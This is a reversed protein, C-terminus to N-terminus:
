VREGIEIDLRGGQFSLIKMAIKSLLPVKKRNPFAIVLRLSLKHKKLLENHAFSYTKIKQQMIQTATQTAM